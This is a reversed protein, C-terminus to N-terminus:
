VCYQTNDCVKYNTINNVTPHNKNFSILFSYFGSVVDDISRFGKKIQLSEIVRRNLFYGIQCRYIKPQERIVKLSFIIDYFDNKSIKKFVQIIDDTIDAVFFFIKDKKIHRFFSNGIM